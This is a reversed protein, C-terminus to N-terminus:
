EALLMKPRCHLVKALRKLVPTTTTCTIGRELFGYIVQSMGITEAVQWQLLKLALRRALIRESVVQVRPPRKQNPSPRFPPIGFYRRWYGVTPTAMGLRQAVQPDSMTGLLAKMDDTWVIRRPNGHAQRTENAKQRVLPNAAMCVARHTVRPPLKLPTIKRFLQLSGENFPKVGLAKRWRSVVSEGVGWWYQIAISSELRLAQVLSGCLIYSYRGGRRGAPTTLPWPIRGDSWKKVRVFGHIECCLESGIRVRPPSYPGGLLCFREVDPLLPM